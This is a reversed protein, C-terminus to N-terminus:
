VDSKEAIRKILIPVLAKTFQCYPLDREFFKGSERVAKVACGGACHYRAYCSKCRLLSDAHRNLMLTLRDKHIKFNREEPVYQGLCFDKFDKDKADVIELCGSLFGDHTVVMTRGSAAGCFYGIGKAFHSLHGNKIKIGYKNAVDMAALFSALFENGDPSYIENPRGKGFVVKEYERGYPFLPELHLSRVGLEGFYRIIWAIDDVPSFTLRVTLKYNRALLRRINAEVIGSSGEGTALPRNRNQVDPPGDMSVSIGFKEDMMWDMFSSDATGNTVIQFNLKKNGCIEKARGVVSKIVGEALTPEGGGHFSIRITESTLQRVFWELSDLALELPMSEGAPKAYASCYYCCLNCQRTLLFTLSQFGSWNQINARRTTEPIGSFFGAKNLAQYITSKSEPFVGIRTILGKFSSYIIYSDNDKVVLTDKILSILSETKM